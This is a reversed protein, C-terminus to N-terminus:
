RVLGFLVFYSLIDGPLVRYQAAHIYFRMQNQIHLFASVVMMLGISFEILRLLLISFYRLRKISM